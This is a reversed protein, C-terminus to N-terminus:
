HGLRLREIVEEAVRVERLVLADGPVAQAVRTEVDRRLAQVDPGGSCGALLVLLGLLLDLRLRM